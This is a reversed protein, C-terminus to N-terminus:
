CSPQPSHATPDPPHHARATPEPSHSRPSLPRSLPTPAPGLLVAPGPVGWPGPDRRHGPGVLLPLSSNKERQLHPPRRRRTGPPTAAPITRILLGKGVRVMAPSEPPPVRVMPPHRGHPLAGLFHTVRVRRWNTARPSPCKLTHRGPPSKGALQPGPTKPNETHHGPTKAAAGM